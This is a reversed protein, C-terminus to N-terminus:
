DDLDGSSHLSGRQDAAYVPQLGLKRRIKGRWAAQEAPEYFKNTPKKSEKQLEKVIMAADLEELHTALVLVERDSATVLKGRTNHFTYSQVLEGTALDVYILYCGHSSTARLAWVGLNYARSYNDLYGSRGDAELALWPVLQWQEKQSRAYARISEALDATTKEIAKKPDIKKAM